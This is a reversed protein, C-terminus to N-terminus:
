NTLINHFFSAHDVSNMGKTLPDAYNDESWIKLIQVVNNAVHERVFHYSLACWKKNLASGPVVLNLFVSQNDVLMATPKSVKIGMSRLHYRITIADEVGTRLAMFEAGFTSTQM